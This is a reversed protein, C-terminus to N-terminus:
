RLGWAASGPKGMGPAAGAKALAAAPLDSTAASKYKRPMSLLKGRSAGKPLSLVEGKPLLLRAAIGACPLLPEGSPAGGEGM